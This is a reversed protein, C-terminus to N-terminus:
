SDITDDAVTARATVDQEAGVLDYDFADALLLQNVLGGQVSIVDGKELAPNPFVSAVVSGSLGRERARYTRAALLCQADTKLVPLSIFRPQEDFSGRVYTPSSPDDDVVRAQPAAVGDGASEGTVVWTNVIQAVDYSLKPKILAGGPGAAYTMVVAGPDLVPEDDAVFTGMPDCYLTWGAASALERLKDAPNAQEDYILLSSNLDTAPIATELKSPPVKSALVRTIATDLSLGGALTFPQSFPQQCYWMRDSAQLSIQPYDSLDVSTIPGTFVPVRETDTGALQDAPTWNWYRVGAWVRVECNRPVILGKDVVPVLQGAPDALTLDATRRIAGAGVSVRGGALVTGPDTGDIRLAVDGDVLLQVSAVVDHSRSVTDLFRQTVGWM